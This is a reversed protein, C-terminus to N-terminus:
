SRGASLAREYVQRTQEVLCPISFRTEVMERGARALEDREKPHEILWVIADALVDPDRIPVVRGNVGDKMYEGIGSANTTAVPLRAALAELLVGAIGEESSSLAFIDLGALVDPIDSRFGAFVVADNLGLEGRLGELQPRLAGDGVILFYAEPHAQRVRAAARLLTAHDKHGVLYGVNGILVSDPPLGYESRLDAPEAADFRAPDTCSRVVDIRDAPVGDDVMVRKVADAVAIYRDVGFRYKLLSLRFPLKHISFDIRRHAVVRRRRRWNALVALAHAHSTHAHLIDAGWRRALRAIRWAAALDWEGRMPMEEVSLGVERARRGAASEPQCVVLCKAGAEELGQALYLMQQEGGRWTRETDIHIVRLM